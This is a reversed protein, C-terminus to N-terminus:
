KLRIRQVEYPQEFLPLGLATLHKCYRGYKGYNPGPIKCFKPVRWSMCSCGWHGHFKNQSIIYVRGSTESHIKFRNKWRKNDPLDSQRILEAVANNRVALASNM